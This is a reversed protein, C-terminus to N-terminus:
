RQQRARVKKRVPEGFKHEPVPTVPGGPFVAREGFRQVSILRDYMLVAGVAAVNLSFKTPIKVLHDCCAIMHQSLGGREMGLIYAARRPHRFSPLDTADDLLEVGVLTCDDPLRMSEITDFRYFPVHATADSTDSAANRTSYAANVTFVFSAGFAHASRVLNGVNMPKSVGEVGIGFYGRM